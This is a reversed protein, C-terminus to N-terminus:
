PSTALLKGLLLITDTLPVAVVNPSNVSVRGIIAKGFDSPKCSLNLDVNLEFVALNNM